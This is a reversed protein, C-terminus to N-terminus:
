EVGGYRKNAQIFDGLYLDDFPDAEVFTRESRQYVDVFSPYPSTWSGRKHVFRRRNYTEKATTFEGPGNRIPDFPVTYTSTFHPM